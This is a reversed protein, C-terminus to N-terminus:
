PPVVLVQGPTLTADQLGNREAIRWVGARPDGAYRESAIAWLTDGPRVVHRMEPGAGSTPRAFVLLVGVLAVLFALLLAPRQVFM